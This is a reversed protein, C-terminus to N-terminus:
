YGVSYKDHNFKAYINIVNGRQTLRATGIFRIRDPGSNFGMQTTGIANGNV